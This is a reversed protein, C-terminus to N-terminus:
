RTKVAGNILTIADCHLRKHNKLVIILFVFAVILLIIILM